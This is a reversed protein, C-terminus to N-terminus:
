LTSNQKQYFIWQLGNMRVYFDPSSTKMRFQFICDYNTTKNLLGSFMHSKYVTNNDSTSGTQALVNWSSIIDSIDITMLSISVNRTIDYIEFELSGSTTNIFNQLNNTNYELVTKCGDLVDGENNRNTFILTQVVSKNDIIVLNPNNTYDSQLALSETTSLSLDYAPEVYDVILSTTSNLQEVSLPEITQITLQDDTIYCGNYLPINNAKM